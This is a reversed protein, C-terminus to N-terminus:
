PQNRRSSASRRISRADILKADLGAVLFILRRGIQGARGSVRRIWLIRLADKLANTVGVLVRVEHDHVLVVVDEPIVRERCDERFPHLLRSAGFSQSLFHVCASTSAPASM